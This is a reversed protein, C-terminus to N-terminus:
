AWTLSLVFAVTAPIALIFAAVLAHREAIPETFSATGLFGHGRAVSVTLLLTACWLLWRSAPPVGTARALEFPGLWGGLRAAVLEHLSTPGSRGDVWTDKRVV